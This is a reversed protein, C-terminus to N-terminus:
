QKGTFLGSAIWGVVWVVVGAALGAVIAGGDGTAMMGVGGIGTLVLALQSYWSINLYLPVFTLLALPIYFQLKTPREAYGWVAIVTCALAWVFRMRRLAEM